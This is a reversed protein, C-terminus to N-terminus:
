KRCWRARRRAFDGAGRHGPVLLQADGLRELLQADVHDLGAKRDGAVAIELGHLRDGFAILSEVTQESARALSASMARAPSASFPALEARMWVKM